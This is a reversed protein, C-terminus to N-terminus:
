WIDDRYDMLIYNPFIRGRDDLKPTDYPWTIILLRVREYKACAGIQFNSRERGM